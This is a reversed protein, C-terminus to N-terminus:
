PFFRFIRLSVSKWQRSLNMMSRWAKRCGLGDSRIIPNICQGSELMEIQRFVDAEHLGLMTEPYERHLETLIDTIGYSVMM